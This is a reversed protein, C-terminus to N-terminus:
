IVPRAYSCKNRVDIVLLRVDEPPIPLFRVVTALAEDKRVLRRQIARSFRAAESLLHESKLCEEVHALLEDNKGLVEVGLYGLLASKRRAWPDTMEPWPYRGWNRRFTETWYPYPDFGFASERPVIVLHELSNEIEGTVSWRDANGQDVPVIQPIMEKWFREIHLLEHLVGEPKFDEERRILIRAHRDNVDAALHNPNPDTPSVPRPNM